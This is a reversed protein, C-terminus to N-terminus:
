RLQAPSTDAPGLPPLVRVLAEEIEAAFDPWGSRAAHLAAEFPVREEARLAVVGGARFREREEVSPGAAARGPLAVVADLLKRVEWEFIGPREPIAFAWLAATAGPPPSATAVSVSWMGRVLPALGRMVFAMHPGSAAFPELAAPDDLWCASVLHGASRGLLAAQVGPADVLAAGLEIAAALRADEGADAPLRGTVVHLVGSM